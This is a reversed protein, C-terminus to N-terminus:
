HPPRRHTVAAGHEARWLRVRDPGMRICLIIALFGIAILYTAGADAGTLAVVVLTLIAGVISLPWDKEVFRKM